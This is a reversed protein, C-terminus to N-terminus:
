KAVFRQYQADLRCLLQLLHRKKKCDWIFQTDKSGPYNNICICSCFYNNRPLNRDGAKIKKTAQQFFTREQTRNLGGGGSPCGGGSPSHLHTRRLRFNQVETKFRRFIPSIPEICTYSLFSPLHYIKVSKTERM